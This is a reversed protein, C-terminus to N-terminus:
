PRGDSWALPTVPFMSIRFKTCGYPVLHIREPAGGTVPGSPLAQADTPEWDFPRARVVLEVPGDLPWDWHPPMARRVVRIGGDARSPDADLAFRWATGSAPTNPDVDPIPLAFLLPGLSVSAYPLRRSQFVQAPEFAFYERNESPFQTEYGRSVRPRMPFALSVRDGQAWTREIRVFGGRGPAAPVHQGNVSISAETCWGPIRLYLPFSVLSAPSVTM